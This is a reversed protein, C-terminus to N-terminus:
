DEEEEEEEEENDIDEEEEKESDEFNLGETAGPHGAEIRAREEEATVGEPILEHKNVNYFYTEWSIANAQMAAVFATLTPADMPMDFFDTNLTVSINEGSLGRYEAVRKLAKTFATSLTNAISALVSAEGSQRLRVTAAAEVAKKQEELLRAGLVAMLAQKEELANSLHLLGAGTFELFGAKANPNDTVWAYSSGIRFTGDMKFGAAWPTPLATFHRGHELDASTRYHSLNVNVLDLIPPKSVEPSLSNPGVFDFPLEDFTKGGQKTPNFPEGIELWTTSDTAGKGQEAGDRKREFVRVEYVGRENLYLFRLRDVPRPDLKFKDDVTFENATEKIVVRSLQLEGEKEGEKLVETMWNHPTEAKYVQIFPKVKGDGNEAAKPADVFLGIRGTILVERLAEKMLEELPQHFPGISELDIEDLVGEIAAPKRFVAGVLGVVTRESANYYMARKKYAPYGDEDGSLKPLYMDSRNKVADEGDTADRCRTWVNLSETYSPHALDMLPKKSHDTM